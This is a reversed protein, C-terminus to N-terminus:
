KTFARLDHDGIWGLDLDALFLFPVTRYVMGKGPDDLMLGCGSVITTTTIITIATTITIITTTITAMTIIAM